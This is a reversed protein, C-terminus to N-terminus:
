ETPVVSIVMENTDTTWQITVKQGNKELDSFTDFVSVARSRWKAKSATLAKETKGEVVAEEWIFSKDDKTEAQIAELLAEKLEPNSYRERGRQSLSGQLQSLNVKRIGKKPNAQKKDSPKQTNEVYHIIALLDFIRVLLSM